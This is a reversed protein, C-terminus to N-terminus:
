VDCLTEHQALSSPFENPQPLLEVKIFKCLADVLDNTCTRDVKTMEILLAAAKGVSCTAGEYLPAKLEM